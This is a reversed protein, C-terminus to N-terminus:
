NEWLNSPVSSINPINDRSSLKQNVSDRDIDKSLNSNKYSKYNESFQSYDMLMINNNTNSNHIQLNRNLEFNVHTNQKQANDNFKNYLDDRSSDRTNLADIRQSNLSEFNFERNLLSLDMNRKITLNEIQKRSNPKNDVSIDTFKNSNQFDKNVFKNTAISQERQLELSGLLSNLDNYEM